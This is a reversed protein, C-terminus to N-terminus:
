SLRQQKLRMNLQCVIITKTNHMNLREGGGGGGFAMHKTAAPVRLFGLRSASIGVCNESKPVFNRAVREEDGAGAFKDVHMNALRGLV